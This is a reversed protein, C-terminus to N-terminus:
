CAPTEARVSVRRRLLAAAGLLGWLLFWPDWLYAHWAYVRRESAPPSGVVETLIETASWTCGYVVLVVTEVWALVSARRAWAGEPVGRVVVLPLLAAVVKLVVATWVGAVVAPGQGGPRALSAGVTALLWTGGSGWYASIGAYALGVLCAALATPTGPRGHRVRATQGTGM